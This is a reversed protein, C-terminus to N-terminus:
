LWFRESANFSHLEFSSVPPLDDINVTMSVLFREGAVLEPTMAAQEPALNSGLVRPKGLGIYSALRNLPSESKQLRSREHHTFGGWIGFQEDNELAYDLCDVKVVCISCLQKAYQISKTTESFFYEPDQDMCAASDSWDSSVDQELSSNLDM